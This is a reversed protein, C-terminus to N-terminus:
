MQSVLLDVLALHTEEDEVLSDFGASESLNWKPSSSISSSSSPILSRNYAVFSDSTNSTSVFQIDSAFDKRKDQEMIDDADADPSSSKEEMSDPSVDSETAKSFLELDDPFSSSSSSSSPWSSLLRLIFSLHLQMLEELMSDELLSVEDHQQPNAEKEDTLSSNVPVLSSSPHSTHRSIM